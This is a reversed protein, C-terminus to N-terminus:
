VIWVSTPGRVYEVQGVRDGSVRVYKRPLMDVHLTHHRTRQMLLTACTKALDPAPRTTSTGCDLIGHPSPHNSAHFFWTHKGASSTLAHNDRANEGLYFIADKAPHFILM